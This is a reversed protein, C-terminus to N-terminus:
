KGRRRWLGIALLVVGALASLVFFCVILDNTEM